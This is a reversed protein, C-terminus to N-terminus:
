KLKNNLAIYADESIRNDNLLCKAFDLFQSKTNNGYGYQKHFEIHIDKSLTIGNDVNTRNDIDWDYSNLHHAVLDGGVTGSIQCVFKDRRLVGQVFERYEPYERKRLREENTKTPKWNPHNEGFNNKKYCDYCQHGSYLLHIISADWVKGCQKCRVKISHSCSIYQGIIEINKNGLREFDALFEDHSKSQKAKAVEYGCMRCGHGRLLSTPIVDWKFGCKKCRCHIRTSSNVYKGIVEVNPDGQTLFKEMFEDHSISKCQPLNRNRLKERHEPNDNLRKSSCHQCGHGNLLSKFSTEWKRGCDLCVCQARGTTGSYESLVRINHGFKKIRNEFESQTLKRPM